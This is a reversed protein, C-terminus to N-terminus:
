VAIVAIEHKASIFNQIVITKIVHNVIISVIQMGSRDACQIICVHLKGISNNVTCVMRHSKTYCFRIRNCQAVIVIM